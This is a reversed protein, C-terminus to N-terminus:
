VGSLLVAAVPFPLGEKQLAAAFRPAMEAPCADDLDATLLAADPRQSSAIHAARLASDITTITFRPSEPLSSFPRHHLGLAQVTRIVLNEIAGAEGHAERIVVLRSGSQM